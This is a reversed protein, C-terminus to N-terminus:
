DKKIKKLEKVPEKVEINEEEKREEEEREEAKKEEAKKSVSFNEAPFIGILFPYVNLMFGDWARKFKYPHIKEGHRDIVGLSGGNLLIGKEWNSEENRQFWCVQLNELM